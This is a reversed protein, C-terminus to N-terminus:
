EQKGSVSVKILVREEMQAMIAFYCSFFIQSIQVPCMTKPIILQARDDSSM